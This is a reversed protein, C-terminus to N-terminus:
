DGLLYDFDQELPQTIRGHSDIIGWKGDICVGTAGGYFAGTTDDYKIPIIIKGARNIYGWKGNKRVAALGEKFPNIADFPYQCPIVLECNKNIFGWRGHLRVSAVGNIFCSVSDYTPALLIKGKIDMFGWKGNLNFSFTDQWCGISDYIAPAIEKESSDFIGYKGDRFVRCVYLNRFEINDYIFPSIEKGTTKIFSWKGNIEVPIIKANFAYISDYKFPTVERANSDLFGWKGNLRAITPPLWNWAIDDYKPALIEKGQYSLMGWKGHLKVKMWKGFEHLKIDDYIAPIIEKGSSDVFGIKGQCIVRHLADKPRYDVSNYILPIFIKGDYGMIGCGSFSYNIKGENKESVAVKDSCLYLSGYFGSGPLLHYRVPIIVEFTHYNIVGYKGDNKVVTADNNLRDYIYDYQIEYLKQEQWNYFGWKGNWNVRFLPAEFDCVFDFNLPVVVQGLTDIVGWHNDRCVKILQNHYRQGDPTSLNEYQPQIVVKGSRDAFGWKGNIKVPNLNLWYFFQLDPYEYDPIKAEATKKKKNLLNSDQQSFCDNFASGALIMLFFLPLLPKIHFDLPKM